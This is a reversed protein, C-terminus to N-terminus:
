GCRAPRPRGGTQDPSRASDAPNRFPSLGISCLLSRATQARSAVQRRHKGHPPEAAEAPSAAAGRPRHRIGRLRTKSPHAPSSPHNQPIVPPKQRDGASSSFPSPSTIRIRNTQWPLVGILTWFGQYEKVKQVYLHFTDLFPHVKWCTYSLLLAHPHIPVNGSESILVCM